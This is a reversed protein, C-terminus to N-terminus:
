RRIYNLISSSKIKVDDSKVRPSLLELTSRKMLELKQMEFDVSKDKKSSLCAVLTAQVLIPILDEPINAVCSEGAKCLYDGIVLDEPLESFFITTGSISSVTKDQSLVDYPSEAQVFDVLTSLTINSPLGSVTISNNDTDIDTIEACRSTSVLKSARRYYVLRLTANASTPIPQLIIENGRLFYGLVSGLEKDEEQLRNLSITNSNEILQVDRLSSGVARSPIRYNTKNATLIYDKYTLFYEGNLKTILPVVTMNMEDNILSLFDATSFLVNSTPFSGKLKIAEIIETTTQSM